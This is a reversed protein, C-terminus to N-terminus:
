PVRSLAKPSYLFGKFTEGLGNEKGRRGVIGNQM